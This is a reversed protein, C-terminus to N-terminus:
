EEYKKLIKSAKKLFVKEERSLNEMGVDNAKDLVQDVLHRLREIEDEDKRHVNMKSKSKLNRIFKGVSLHRWDIKMYLFGVLMGGLHAFHAVRDPSGLVGNFISIAAFGLALTRARMRVPLIFFLLLTLERNPFMVAYATLVGM